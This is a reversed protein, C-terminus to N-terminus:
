KIGIEIIENLFINVFVLMELAFSLFYFLVFM